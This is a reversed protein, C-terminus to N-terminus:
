GFDVLDFGIMLFEMFLLLVSDIGPNEVLTLIRRFQFPSSNSLCIVVIGVVLM